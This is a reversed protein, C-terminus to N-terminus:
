FAYPVLPGPPSCVCACWRLPAPKTVPRSVLVAAAPAASAGAARWADGAHGSGRPPMAAVATPYTAVAKRPVLDAVAMPLLADQRGLSVDVVGTIRLASARLGGTPQRSSGGREGHQARGQVIRFGRAMRAPCCHPAASSPQGLGADCATVYEM